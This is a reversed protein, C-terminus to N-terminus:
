RYRIRTGDALRDNPHRVVRDGADLGSRVEVALGQTHGITVHRITATGNEDAFVAWHEGNRFLATLPVTLVDEGHWVVVRVNVRYGHGLSARRAPPDMLDMVVNVRQEEIGLASVKTFALPEVTRVTGELDHEGGWRDIIVRQGPTIKVADNSLLDAVVELDTPDGIELLPAGPSVITESKLLVRLVRGTVPSKVTICECPARQQNIDAPTILRAQARNLEFSRISLNAQAAEVTADTAQAAREADDVRQKPVTGKVYLERAREVEARAFAREAEARKLEAAALDRAAHAADRAAESEAQSRPDLFTPDSPEIEAVTTQGAVVEDGAKLLPRLLRGTVPASITFVERTRTQGEEDITVLMPGREVAVVDVLEARPRFLLFLTLVLGIVPVSWLAIRKYTSKTTSLQM